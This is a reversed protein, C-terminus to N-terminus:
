FVCVPGQEEQVLRQLKSERCISGSKWDGLSLCELAKGTGEGEQEWMWVTVLDQLRWRQM